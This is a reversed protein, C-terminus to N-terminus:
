ETTGPVNALTTLYDDIQDSFHLLRPPIKWVQAQVDISIRQDRLCKYVDDSPRMVFFGLGIQPRMM